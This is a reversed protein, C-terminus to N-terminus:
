NDLRDRLTKAKPVKPKSVETAKVLPLASVGRSAPFAPINHRAQTDAPNYCIGYIQAAPFRRKISQIVAAVTAEDGLNGTGMPSFIGIRPVALPPIMPADGQLPGEELIGTGGYDNPRWPTVTTLTGFCHVGSGKM